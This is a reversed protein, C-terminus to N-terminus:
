PRQVKFLYYFLRFACNKRCMRIMVFKELVFFVFIVFVGLRRNYNLSVIKLIVNFFRIQIDLNSDM